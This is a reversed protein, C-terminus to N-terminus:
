RPQTSEIIVESTANVSTELATCGFVRTIGHRTHNHLACPPPPPLKPGLSLFGVYHALNTIILLYINRIMQEAGEVNLPRCGGTPTFTVPYLYLPGSMYTHICTRTCPKEGLPTSGLGLLGNSVLPPDLIKSPPPPPPTGPASVPNKVLVCVGKSMTRTVDDARRFISFCGWEQVNM